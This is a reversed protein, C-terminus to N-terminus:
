TMARRYGPRSQEALEDRVLTLNWGGSVRSVSEIAWEEESITMTAAENPVAVGGYVSDPDDTITAECRRGVVRAGSAEDTRRVEPSVIVTLSVTPRNVPSYIGSQGFYWQLSPLGTAAFASDFRSM